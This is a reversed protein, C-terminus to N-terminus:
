GDTREAPGREYEDRRGGAAPVPCDHRGAEVVLHIRDVIWEAVIVEVEGEVDEVPQMVPGKGVHVVGPFPVRGDDRHGGSELPAEGVGQLGLDPYRFRLSGFPGTLGQEPELGGIVSRGERTVELELAGGVLEALEQDVAGGVLELLGIRVTPRDRPQGAGRLRRHELDLEVLVPGSPGFAHMRAQECLRHFRQSQVGTLIGIERLEGPGGERGHVQHGPQSEMAGVAARQDAM